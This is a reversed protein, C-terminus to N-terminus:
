KNEKERSRKVEECFGLYECRHVTFTVFDGFVKKSELSIRPCTKCTEDM